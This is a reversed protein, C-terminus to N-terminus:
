KTLHHGKPGCKINTDRAWAEAIDLLLQDGFAEAVLTVGWPLVAPRKAIAAARATEEASSGAGPALVALAHDIGPVLSAPQSVFHSLFSFCGVM